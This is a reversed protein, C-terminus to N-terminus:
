GLGVTCYNSGFDGKLTYVTASCPIIYLCQCKICCVSFALHTARSPTVATPPVGNLPRSAHMLFALANMKVPLRYRLQALPLLAFVWTMFVYPPTSTDSSENKSRPQLHLHDAKRKPCRVWTSLLWIDMKYAATHAGPVSHVGRIPMSGLHRSNTTQDNYSNLQWM